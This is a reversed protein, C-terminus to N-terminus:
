PSRFALGRVIGGASSLPNWQSNVWYGPVGGRQGGAYVIGDVVKIAEVASAVDSLAHWTGNMWYGAISVGSSNTSFGGAYITGSQVDIAAVESNQIESLSQLPNWSGNQWYGAVRRGAATTSFGAAYVVGGDVVISRVRSINSSLRSLGHWVGNRWYGPIRVGSSNSSVGGAYVDAGDLFLSYVTHSYANDGNDLKPLGIWIGNLWYGPNHRQWSGGSLANISYGGVYTIGNATALAYVFSSYRSDLRPLVTRTSNRWIVPVTVGGDRQTGAAFVDDGFVSIGYVSSRTGSFPLATWDGGVWVGPVPGAADGGAVLIATDSVNDPPNTGPPLGGGNSGAVGTPSDCSHLLVLALLLVGLSHHKIWRTESEKPKM